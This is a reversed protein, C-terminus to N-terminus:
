TYHMLFVYVLKKLEVSKVVVNKVVDPYFQSVDRGKSVMALLWKMGQLRDQVADGSKGSRGNLLDKLKGANISEEFFRAVVFM